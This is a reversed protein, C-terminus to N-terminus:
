LYKKFSGVTINVAVSLLVASPLLILLPHVSVPMALYVVWPLVALPTVSARARHHLFGSERGAGFRRIDRRALGDILGVFAATLSLPLALCLVMLRVLFTLLTYSAALVYAEVHFYALGLYHRFSHARHTDDAAQTSTKRAWDLLGTDVFLRQHIASVWRHAAKGPDDILLSQTFYDSLQRLEYDLMGEAHHWGLQPWAFHMGVCEILISLLLSGCLVGFLQFPLTVLTAILGPPRAAQRSSTGSDSM